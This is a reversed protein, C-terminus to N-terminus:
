PCLRIYDYEVLTGSDSFWAPHLSIGTIVGEWNVSPVLDINIEQWTNDAQVEFKVRKDNSFQSDNAQIWYFYAVDSTERSIIRYRVKLTKYIDADINLNNPGVWFGETQTIVGAMYGRKVDVSVGQGTQWGESNGDISFNWETCRSMPLFTCASFIITGLILIGRSLIQEVSLRNKV